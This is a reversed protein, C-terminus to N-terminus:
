RAVPRKIRRRDGASVRYKLDPAGSVRLVQRFYGAPGVPISGLSRYRDGSAKSEVLVETAGSGRVSGWVEVASGGLSRVLVPMRFAAYTHRKKEGRGFRLGSEWAPDDRLLYQGHAAVRRNKFALWESLDLLGAAQRLPRGLIGVDPPSTQWGFETIWIPTRRTIGGRRAVRDLARTLRDLKYISAEDPGDGGPVVYPHYALGSTPIRKFRTCGRRRAAAGRYPRYSGDLCAMERLFGIPSTKGPAKYGNPMLEGLLITDGAHGNDTLARHAAMYLRRYVHPAVPLGKVRQPSLWSDLNGENWMSWIHVNSFRLAAAQTFLGFERANPKFTGRRGRRGSAWDPARSGVTLFPRMGHAIIADVAEVYTGWNYSGPDAADFGAPKTAGKPALEDWYLQIKVVDVGLDEMEDLTAERAAAGSHRMLSDDQMILLQDAAAHAAPAAALVAVITAILTPLRNM